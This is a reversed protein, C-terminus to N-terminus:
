SSSFFFSCCGRLTRSGCGPTGDQRLCNAAVVAALLVFAWSVSLIKLPARALKLPLALLQFASFYLPCGLLLMNLLSNGHLRKGPLSGLLGFLVLYGAALVFGAAYGIFGTM